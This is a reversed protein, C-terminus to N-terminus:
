QTREEEESCAAVDAPGSALCHEPLTRDDKGGQTQDRSFMVPRM